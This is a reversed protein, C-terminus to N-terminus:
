ALVAGSVLRTAVVPLAYCRPVRQRGGRCAGVRVPGDTALVRPCTIGPIPRAARSVRHGSRVPCHKSLDAHTAKLVQLALELEIIGALGDRDSEFNSLARDIDRRLIQVRPARLHAAATLHHPRVVVAPPPSM